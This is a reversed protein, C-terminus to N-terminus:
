GELAEIRTKLDDIITQQEQIAKTLLPVLKSQDIGQYDPVERTGMEAETIVNGDDDLVAPTVEYEEEKVADKEGTVAEPIIDQVEHALFGDVTTDADAIFNFRVPKLQAVRDLATFDYDVNEKLRYDSSTNFATSSGSTSVSGVRGNANYFGIQLTSSTSPVACRVSEDTGGGSAGRIAVGLTNNAFTSVGVLLNGSSDIRMREAGATNFHMHDNSHDYTILGRTHTAGTGGDAFAISGNSVTSGVITMGADGSGSGVVLDSAAANYDSPDNNKIGVNGSSDIRMRENSAAGGGVHFRMTASADTNYNILYLNTEGFDAIVSKSTSTGVAIGGAVTLKQGLHATTAGIGVNGSSDIRMRESGGSSGTSFKITGSATDSM